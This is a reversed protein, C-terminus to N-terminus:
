LGGDEAVPAGGPGPERVLEPAAASRRGCERIAHVGPAPLPDLGEKVFRGIQRRGLLARV